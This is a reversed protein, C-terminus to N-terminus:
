QKKAWIVTEFGYLAWTSGFPAVRNLSFSFPELLIGLLFPLIPRYKKKFFIVKMNNLQLIKLVQDSSPPSNVHTDDDYYNLTGRRSPFNVTCESPFSLYLYGDPKIAGCMASLVENRSQCHELNHSSLVADVSSLESGIALAFNAPTVIRYEDAIEVPNKSHGYNQVDIGIYVLDPRLSKVRYPSDNGCGVDMLRVRPPLMLVFADKGRSRFAGKFFNKIKSAIKYRWIVL